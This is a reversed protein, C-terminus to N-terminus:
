VLQQQCLREKIIRQRNKQAISMRRKTEESLKKGLNAQRLKEKTEDSLAVGLRSNAKKCINFWPDYLDMFFQEQEILEEKICFIIVSYLLDSDGYKNFHAQLKPNHHLKKKLKLMHEQWRRHLNVASGIYIKKPKIISTIKYIGSRRFV